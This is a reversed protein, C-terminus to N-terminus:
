PTDGSLQEPTLGIDLEGGDIWVGFQHGCRLCHWSGANGDVRREFDSAVLDCTPCPGWLTIKALHDNM